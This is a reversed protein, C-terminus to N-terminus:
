KQDMIYLAIVLVLGDDIIKVVISCLEIAASYVAGILEKWFVLSIRAVVIPTM